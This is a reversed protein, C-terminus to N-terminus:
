TFEESSITYNYAKLLANKYIIGFNEIMFESYKCFDDINEDLVRKYIAM